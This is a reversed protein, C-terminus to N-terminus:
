LNPRLNVVSVLFICSSSLSGVALVVHGFGRVCACLGNLVFWGMGSEQAHVSTRLRTRISRFHNQRFAHPRLSAAFALAGHSLALEGAFERSFCEDTLVSSSRSQPKQDNRLEFTPFHSHCPANFGLVVPAPRRQSRIFVPLSFKAAM